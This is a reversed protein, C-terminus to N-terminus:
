IDLNKGQPAPQMRELRLGQIPLWTALPQRQTKRTTEQPHAGSLACFLSPSRPAFCRILHVKASPYSEPQSKEILQVGAVLEVLEYSTRPSKPKHWSIDYWRRLIQQNYRLSIYHNIAEGLSNTAPSSRRLPAKWDLLTPQTPHGATGEKLSLRPSNERTTSPDNKPCIGHGEYIYICVCLYYIFCTRTLWPSAVCKQVSHGPARLCQWYCM